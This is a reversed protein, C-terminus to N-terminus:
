KVGKILGNVVNVQAYFVGNFGTLFPKNCGSVLGNILVNSSGMVKLPQGIAARLARKNPYDFIAIM